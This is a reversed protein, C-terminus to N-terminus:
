LILSDSISECEFPKTTAAVKNNNFERMKLYSEERYDLETSNLGRYGPNTQTALHKCFELLFRARERKVKLYPMIDEIFSIILERKRVVWIYIPQSNPRSKRAGNHYISGIGMEDLVFQVAEPQIMSISVHPLYGICWQKVRKPFEEARKTSRNKTPRKYKSIMFCGDSDMVGAIYALHTQRQNDHM